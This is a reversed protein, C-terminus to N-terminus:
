DLTKCIARLQTNAKLKKMANVQIQRIRERCFGLIQGCEELSMPNYQNLGFRMEIVSRENESLKALANNIKDLLLQEGAAEEPKLSSDDRIFDILATERDEGVTEDLSLLGKEASLLATIKEGPTESYRALEDLSPNRGLSAFLHRYDRKLKTLKETVHVPLRVTRSKDSLARTIAQRIWWTAYTSFKYGRDPEFKDAARMLGLSGEQILDNFAMGRNRYRKAISVVLRLNAQILRRRAASDGRRMARSLQIEEHGTLLKTRGIEKLYIQISDEDPLARAQAGAEEAVPATDSAFSHDVVDIDFDCDTDQPYDTWNKTELHMKECTM